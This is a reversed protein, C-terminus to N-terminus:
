GVLPRWKPNTSSTVGFNQSVTITPFGSSSGEVFRPVGMDSRSLGSEPQLDWLTMSVVVGFKSVFPM